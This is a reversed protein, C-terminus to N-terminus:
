TRGAGEVATGAHEGGGTEIGLGSAAPAPLHRELMLAGFQANMHINDEIGHEQDLGPRLRVARHSWVASSFIERERTEDPQGCLTAGKEDAVRALAASYQRWLAAEDGNHAARRFPETRSETTELLAISPNPQPFVRVPAGTIPRLKDYVAFAASQRIREEATRAFAADSVPTRSPDPAHSEAWCSGYLPAITEVGLRLGILWFADYDAAVIAEHGGSVWKLQERMKQNRAQLAGRRATLTELTAGRAAFFTIEVTPWREALGKWASALSAVHSNGVICLRLSM